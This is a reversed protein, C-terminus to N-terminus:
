KVCFHFRINTLFFIWALHFYFRLCGNVVVALVEIYTVVEFDNGNGNLAIIGTGCAVGYWAIVVRDMGDTGACVKSGVVAVGDMGDVAVEWGGSGAEAM